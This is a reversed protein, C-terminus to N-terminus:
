SRETVIAEISSQSSVATTGGAVTSRDRRGDVIDRDPFSDSAV